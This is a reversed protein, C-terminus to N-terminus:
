HAVAEGSAASAVPGTRSLAHARGGRRRRQQGGEGEATARPAEAAPPVEAAPPTATAQPMEAAQPKRPVDAEPRRRGRGRGRGGGAEGRAPDLHLAQQEGAEPKKEKKRPAEKAEKAPMQRGQSPKGGGKQSENQPRASRARAPAGA